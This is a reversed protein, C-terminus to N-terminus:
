AQSGAHRCLRRRLTCPGGMPRAVTGFLHQVRGLALGAAGAGAAPAGAAACCATEKEAVLLPAVANALHGRAGGALSECSECGATPRARGMYGAIAVMLYCGSEVVWFYIYIYLVELQASSLSECLM